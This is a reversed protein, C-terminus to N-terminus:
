TQSLYVVLVLHFLRLQIEDSSIENLSTSIAEATGAVDTKIVVNLIKKSDVGM